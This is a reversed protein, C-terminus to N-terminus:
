RELWVTITASDGANAQALAAKLRGHVIYPEYVKRTGDYTIDTGDNTEIVRRPYLKVDANADTLSVISEGAPDDEDSLTLDTTAPPSGAYAVQVALVRGRVPTDSYGAATAAGASGAAAGTSFQTRDIM